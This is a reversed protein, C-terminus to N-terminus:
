EPSFTTSVVYDVKEEPPGAEGDASWNVNLKGSLRHAMHMTPALLNADRILDLFPQHWSSVNLRVSTSTRETSVWRQTEASRPISVFAQDVSVQFSGVNDDYRHHVRYVGKAATCRLEREVYAFSTIQNYESSGDRLVTKFSVNKWDDYTITFGYSRNIVEKDIDM